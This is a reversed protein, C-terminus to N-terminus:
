AVMQSFLVGLRHVLTIHAVSRESINASLIMVHVIFMLQVGKM